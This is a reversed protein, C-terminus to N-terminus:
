AGGVDAARRGRDHRPRWRDGGGRSRGDAHARQSLGVGVQEVPDASDRVGATDVLTVLVGGLEVRETLMDRTTGPVDTVIARAGGLIANFLRSKGVNPRGAIVVTAGDRILRGRSADRLCSTSGTWWSRSRPSPRPRSRSITARTRSLGAVGRAQRDPRVGRRRDRGGPHEVHRAVPRVGPAGAAADIGSDPGRCGRGRGPGSATSSPASRSSARGRWARGMLSPRVSLAKSSCPTATPASRWSTRAPTPGHRRSGSPSPRM